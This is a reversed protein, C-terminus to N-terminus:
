PGQDSIRGADLHASCLDMIEATTVADVFKPDHAPPRSAPARCWPIWPGRGVDASFLIGFEHAARCRGRM